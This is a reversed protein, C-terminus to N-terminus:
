DPLLLKFCHICDRYFLLLFKREVLVECDTEDGRVKCLFKGEDEMKSRKIYLRRKRGECTIEYDKNDPTIEVGDKFWTVKGDMDDLECELTIPDHENVRFSKLVRMFKFMQDTITLATVTFEENNIKCTYTGSDTKDSGQIKLYKKASKDEEILHKRSNILLEDNFYWKVPAKPSNTQCELITEGGTYGQSEKPLKKIFKYVPDAPQVELYAETKVELCQCVYKMEDDVKPDNIELVHLDGQSTMKYHKGVFLEQKNKFWKAKVNNKSFVCEFRVKKDRGEKCTQNQLPKIFHDAKQQTDFVNVFTLIFEIRCIM